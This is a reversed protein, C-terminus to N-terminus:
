KKVKRTLVCVVATTDEFKEHNREKEILPKKTLEIFMKMLRELKDINGGIATLEAKGFKELDFMVAPIYASINKNGVIIRQKKM